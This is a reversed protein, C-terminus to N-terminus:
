SGRVNSSSRARARALRELLADLDLLREVEDRNL